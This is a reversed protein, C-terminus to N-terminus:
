AEYVDRYNGKPLGEKGEPSTLHPATVAEESYERVVKELCAASLRAHNATDLCYRIGEALQKSNRPEAVFGNVQHEIMEPIGGSRFGVCPTGCAMAEMITNPLNDQLSPTVFCDSAAYLMAMERPDSVVRGGKGIRLVHVDEFECLAEDLYRVGKREDNINQSCFMIIQKDQPLGLQRRADAKDMKHFTASPICNCVHRVDAWPMAKRARDTIWQSCGVFRVDANRYIGFKRERLRQSMEVFQSKLTTSYGKEVAADTDLYHELGSYAWEDHLTWVIRKGSKLMKEIAKLSLMGQNVWHLHIVDAERYEQLHTIDIGDSALDYAWTKRLPLRMRLMIRLREIVKPLKTGIRVVRDDDSVKDRVVMRAEVGNSNLAEMLRYAAIAGGGVKDATSVILIRM